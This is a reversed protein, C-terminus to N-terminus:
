KKTRLPRQYLGALSHTRSHTLFFLLSLSHSLNLPTYSRRTTAESLYILRLLPRSRSSTADRGKRPSQVIAIEFNRWSSEGGDGDGDADEVEAEVAAAGFHAFFQCCCLRFPASFLSSLCVAAVLFHSKKNREGKTCNKTTTTTQSRRFTLNPLDVVQCQFLHIYKM